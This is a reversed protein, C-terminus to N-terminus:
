GHRADERAPVHETDPDVAAVVLRAAAFEAGVLMGTLQEVTPRPAPQADGSALASEVVALRQELLGAVDTAGAPIGRISWRLTRSRRVRRVLAAAKAVIEGALDDSLLADRLIRAEAAADAWGAVGLFRALGDLERAAVNGSRWGSSAVHAADLVEATAEQIVDGQLTVRVVLGAPWDPLVPGLPVHLRDLTLGDRDEGLDAMPLGGPLEMGGGHGHHAHHGAHAEHGEHTGDGEHGGHGANASHAEHGSHDSREADTHEDPEQGGQQGHGPHEPSTHHADGGEREEDGEQGNRREQQGMHGEHATHGDHTSQEDHEAHAHHGLGAIGDSGARGEEDGSTRAQQHDRDALLAVAADLQRDLDVPDAIAVRARPTPVQQWVREIVAALEPGPSGAVVVIDADAPGAAAPWGRGAIAAEVACRAATGGLAPVVLVHPRRAAMRLLVSTLDM